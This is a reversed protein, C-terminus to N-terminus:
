GTHRQLWDTLPKVDMMVARIRDVAKPTSLWTSPKFSKGAFIDKMRLLGIRPHDATYGRPAGKLTEHTDVRYGKKRLAKVIRDLEKGSADDAIAGRFRELRVSDPMYMGGGVYLGEKSLHIYHSGMGAGVFTKYPSKNSSFRIDRYIRSVKGKGFRPGLEALLSTMPAHCAREYLQKRPLFWERNNHRELGKFFDIAERPFGQFGDAM